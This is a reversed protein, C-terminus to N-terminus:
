PKGLRAAAGWPLNIQVLDGFIKPLGEASRRVDRWSPLVLRMKGQRRHAFKLLAQHDIRCLLHIWLSPPAICISELDAADACFAADGSTAQDRLASEDAADLESIRRALELQRIDAMQAAAAGLGAGMLNKNRKTSPLVEGDCISGSGIQFFLLDRSTIYIRYLTHKSGLISPDCAHFFLRVQGQHDFANNEAPQPSMMGAAGEDAGPSLFGARARPEAEPKLDAGCKPCWPPLRGGDDASVIRSCSRCSVTQAM